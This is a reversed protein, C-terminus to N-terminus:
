RENKKWDKVKGPCPHNEFHKACVRKGCHCFFDGANKCKFVRCLPFKM